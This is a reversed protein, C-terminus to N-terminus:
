LKHSSTEKAEQVNLKYMVLMGPWIRTIDYFTKVNPQVNLRAKAVWRWVALQQLWQEMDTPQQKDDLVDCDVPLKPDFRLTLYAPTNNTSLHISIRYALAITSYYMDWNSAKHKTLISFSHSLVKIFAETISNSQPHYATAIMRNINYKNCFQWM